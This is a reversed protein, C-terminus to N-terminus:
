RAVRRMATEPSPPLSPPLYPPLYSPPLFSPPLSLPLPGPGLLPPQLEHFQEDLCEFRRWRESDKDCVCSVQGLM